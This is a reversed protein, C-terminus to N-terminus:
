NVKLYIENGLLNSWKIRTLWHIDVEKSAIYFIWAVKQLDLM